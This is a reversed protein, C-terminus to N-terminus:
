GRLIKSELHEDRWKNWDNLASRARIALSPVLAVIPPSDSPLEALAELLGAVAALRDVLESSAMAVVALELATRTERRLQSLDLSGDGTRAAAARARRTVDGM